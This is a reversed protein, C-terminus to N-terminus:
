GDSTLTQELVTHSGIISSINVITQIRGKRILPMLQQTLDLPGIANVQM